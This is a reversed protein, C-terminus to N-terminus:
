FPRKRFVLVGRNVLTSMILSNAFRTLNENKRGLSLNTAFVRNELNIYM